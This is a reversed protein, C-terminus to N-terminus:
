VMRLQQIVEQCNLIKELLDLPRYFYHCTAEYGIQSDERAVVYQRQALRMEGETIEIMEKAIRQGKEGDVSALDDRLRLFRIQNAVSKSHLYCTEAVGLDKRARDQKHSPVLAVAERFRDLGSQWIRALKELQSEAVEPPYSGTWSRYDDYPYLTMTAKYGTPHLRLPNAVGHQMPLPYVVDGGEMPFEQFARSFLEWAQLIRPAAKRGYRQVAVQQLAAASDPAPSFYYQKAVDFNPSPYGGLTWSIM